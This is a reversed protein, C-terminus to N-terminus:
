KKFRLAQILTKPEDFEEVLGPCKEILIDLWKEGNILLVASITISAVIGILFANAVIFLGILSLTVLITEM